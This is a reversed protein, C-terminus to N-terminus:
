LAKLVLRAPKGAHTRAMTTGCRWRGFGPVADTRDQAVGAVLQAFQCALAGALKAAADSAHKSRRTRAVTGARAASSRFRPQEDRMASALRREGLADPVM